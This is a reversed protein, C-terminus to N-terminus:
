GVRCSRWTFYGADVERLSGRALADFAELVRGRGFEEVVVQRARGALRRAEEAGTGTVHEVLAPVDRIATDLPVLYGTNGDDIFENLAPVDTAIVPVAAGMSKLAALGFGELRTIPLVTVDAQRYIGPMEDRAIGDLWQVEPSRRLLQELRTRLGEGCSPHFRNPVLWRAHPLIQPDEIWEALLHAGKYETLTSPFAITPGVPQDAPADALATPGGPTFLETEVANPVVLPIFEFSGM